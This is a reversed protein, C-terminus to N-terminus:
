QWHNYVSLSAICVRDDDIKRGRSQRGSTDARLLLRTGNGQAPFDRTIVYNHEHTCVSCVEGAKLQKVHECQPLVSYSRSLTLIDHDSLAHM